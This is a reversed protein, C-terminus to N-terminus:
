FAPLWHWVLLPLSILALYLVAKRRLFLAFGISLVITAVAIVPEGVSGLRNPSAPDDWDTDAALLVITALSHLALVVAVWAVTLRWNSANTVDVRRTAIIAVISFAIPALVLVM